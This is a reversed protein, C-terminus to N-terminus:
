HPYASTPDRYICLPQGDPTFSHQELQELLGSMALIASDHNRGYVLGFINAILGNPAVVSQFMLAHARKHGNYIDRQHQKRRCIPRVAGVVFEWCNDIPAGKNHVADAFGELCDQSLWPQEFSTLLDGFREFFHNVVLNTVM